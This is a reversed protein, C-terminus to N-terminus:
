FFYDEIQITVKDQAPLTEDPHQIEKKFKINNKELVELVKGLNQSTSIITTPEGKFASHPNPDSYSIGVNLVTGSPLKQALNFWKRILTRNPNIKDGKPVM